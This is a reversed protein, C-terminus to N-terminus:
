SATNPAYICRTAPSNSYHAEIQRQNVVPDFRLGAHEIEAAAVARQQFHQAVVLLHISEADFDIGIVDRAANRAADIDDLLSEVLAEGIETGATEIDDPHRQRQLREIMGIAHQFFHQAYAALADDRKRIEAVPAAAPVQARASAHRHRFCQRVLPVVRRIDVEAGDIIELRQTGLAAQADFMAGDDATAVAAPNACAQQRIQEPDSRDVVNRALRNWSGQATMAITTYLDGVSMVPSAVM